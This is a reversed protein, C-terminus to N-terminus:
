EDNRRQLYQEIKKLLQDLAVPKTLIEDAWLWKRSSTHRGGHADGRVSAHGTAPSFGIEHFAATQMIIPTGRTEPNEKVKKCFVVGSDYEEMMLDALILDPKFGTLKALGEEMSKATVVHYGHETLFIAQGNLLDEDDDVILINPV